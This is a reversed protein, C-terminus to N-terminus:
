TLSDYLGHISSSVLVKSEGLAKIAQSCITCADAASFTTDPTKYIGCSAEADNASPLAVLLGLYITRLLRPRAGAGSHLSVRGRM